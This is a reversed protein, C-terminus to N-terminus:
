DKSHGVNNECIILMVHVHLYPSRFKRSIYIFQGEFLSPQGLFMKISVFHGRM